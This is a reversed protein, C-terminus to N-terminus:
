DARRSYPTFDGLVCSGYDINSFLDVVRAIDGRCLQSSTSQTVLARDRDLVPCGGRPRNVYLRGSRGEFLIVGEGVSRNGRDLSTQAVCTVPDDATRGRLEEALAAQDEATPAVPVTACASAALLPLLLLIRAM